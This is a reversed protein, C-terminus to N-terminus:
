LVTTSAAPARTASSLNKTLANSASIISAMTSQAIHQEPCTPVGNLQNESAKAKKSRNL